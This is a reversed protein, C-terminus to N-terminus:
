SLQVLFGYYKSWFLLIYILNKLVKEYEGNEGAIQKLREISFGGETDIFIVKKGQSALNAAAILCLNTKGSGAPGYLTTIIDNEYGGALWEDLDTSGSSIKM